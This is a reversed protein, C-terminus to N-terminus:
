VLRDGVKLRMGQLYAVADIEKKSPAQIRTIELSGKQCGVRVYDKQIEIIEGSDFSGSEDFGRIQSLKLKSALFVKPWREYALYKYFIEKADVFDVLGDEKKIKTCYTSDCHCQKFPVIDLTELVKAFVQAGLVALEQELVSFTQQTNKVFGFGLVAGSDLGEEMQMISVGFHEFGCLIMEQIPSAGRLLPLISAHINICQTVELIEKPLIRGYAVVLMLDVRLASLLKSDLVEPQLIPLGSLHSLFFEKAETPKLLMKRGSPKDCQTLLGVVEYDRTFSHIQLLNAFVMSAFNPTGAFLIRRKKM